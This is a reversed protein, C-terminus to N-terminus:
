NAAPHFRGFVWAGLGALLASGLPTLFLITDPTAADVPRACLDCVASTFPLTVPTLYALAAGLLIAGIRKRREAAGAVAGLVFPVGALWGLLVVVRLPELTRAWGMVPYTAPAIVWLAVVFFLTAALFTAAQQRAVSCAREYLACGVQRWYWLTTRGAAFEELM